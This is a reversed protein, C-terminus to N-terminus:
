SSQACVSSKYPVSSASLRACVLQALYIETKEMSETTCGGLHPTIVLNRHERAYLALPNSTAVTASENCIVDVAAGALAGSKLTELFAKEDVLEGRATNIFWAGPKMAEFQPWGFFAKTEKCLNVHLTVLDSERLLQMLPVLQIGEELASQSVNPDATLVRMDFARLYHAVLRGLRGYGVVGATKGYLERGQFLDRNWGGRQVHGVAGPVNRILSLILAITHEATARVKSLFESAGRLSIVEIGRRQAHKVDIHNLGTTPTAILKLRPAAEMLAGSVRNRLRVWLVDVHPLARGLEALDLDALTVKGFRSLLDM